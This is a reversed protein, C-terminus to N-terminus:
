IKYFRIIYNLRINIMGPKYLGKICSQLSITDSAQWDGDAAGTVKRGHSGSADKWVIVNGNWSNSGAQSIEISNLYVKVKGFSNGEYCNGYMLKASGFGKMYMTISGINANNFWGYWTNSIYANQSTWCTDNFLPDQSKDINFIWGYSEMVQKSSLDKVGPNM